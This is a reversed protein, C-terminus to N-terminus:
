ARPLACGVLTLAGPVVDFRAPLRGLPEGDIEVFPPDDGLPDAELTRGRLARVGAVGLHAGRYIRPLECLLRLKSIGPIVTVDLLGDDPRARPAVEMGGGFFRGNAATALVLPGEHVLEGDLRLAVPHAAARYSAISRITGILFSATGGLAKPARNVLETTLGSMGLSAINAFYVTADRGDRGRYRARGADLATREGRLIAELAADMESPVGLTRRLDGGTGLPLLAIEAYRGLDAALIGTVVESLTGDGGAVVVREVGARVGERAIREADRPGRTWEIDCDGLAERVRALVREFRRRGAGGRSAPNVVVLTRLSM